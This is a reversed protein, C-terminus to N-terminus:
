RLDASPAFKENRALCSNGSEGWRRRKAPGARVDRDGPRTKQRFELAIGGSNQVVGTIHQGIRGELMPQWPVLRFGLGDDLMAFRGSALSIPGLLTGSVHNGPRVPAFTRGNAQRRARGEQRELTAVLDRSFTITGSTADHEAHGMRVLQAARRDLANDVDLGFGSRVLPVPTRATLERDLWTAGDSGM